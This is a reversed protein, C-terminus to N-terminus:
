LTSYYPKSVPPPHDLTKIAHPKVNTAVTLKSTDFLKAFQNLLTEVRDQQEPKDIHRTLYTINNNLSYTTPNHFSISSTHHHITLSSNLMFIPLRQQLKFCPRFLVKASSLEVSVPVTVTRRINTMTDVLALIDAESETAIRLIECQIGLRSCGFKRYNQTWQHEELWFQSRFSDLLIDIQQENNM